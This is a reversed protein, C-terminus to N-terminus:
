NIRKTMLFADKGSPYFKPLRKIKKFGRKQFFTIAEPNEIKVEIRCLHCKKQKLWELVYNMLLKGIGEGRQNEVVAIDGIGGRKGSIWGAAFGAIKDGHVAVVFGDPYRKHCFRFNKESWPDEPFIEQEIKLIEPLDSLRFQRLFIKASKRM